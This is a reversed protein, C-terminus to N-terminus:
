KNEDYSSSESTDIFSVSSSLEHRIAEDRAAEQANWHTAEKMCKACVVIKRQVLQGGPAIFYIRHRIKCSHCVCGDCIRCSSRGFNGITSHTRRDCVVCQKKQAARQRELSDHHQLMWTLKKMQGCHVYNTASLLAGAAVSVALSRM